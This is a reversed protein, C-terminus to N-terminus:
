SEVLRRLGDLHSQRGGIVLHQQDVGHRRAGPRPERASEGPLATHEIAPAVGPPPAGQRNQVEFVTGSLVEDLIDQGPPIQRGTMEDVVSRVAGEECSGKVKGPQLRGPSRHRKDLADLDVIAEGWSIM